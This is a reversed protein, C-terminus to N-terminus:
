KQNKINTRYVGKNPNPESIKKELVGKENKSGKEWKDKKENYKLENKEWGKYHSCVVVPGDKGDNFQIRFYEPENELIKINEPHLGRDKLNKIYRKLEVKSVKTIKKKSEKDKERELKDFMKKVKGDRYAPALVNPGAVINYYSLDVPARTSVVEGIGKNRKKIEGKRKIDLAKSIKQVAMEEVAKKYKRKGLKAIKQVNTM